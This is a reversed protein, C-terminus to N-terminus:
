NPILRVLISLIVMTVAAATGVENVTQPTIKPSQQTERVGERVPSNCNLCNYYIMGDTGIPVNYIFQYGSYSLVRGNVPPIPAGQSSGVFFKEHKLMTLADAYGQAQYQGKLSLSSEMFHSMPKLEWVSNIGNSMYHLDPRMKLDWKWISQSKESFWNERFDLNNNFFNSMAAHAYVGALAPSIGLYNQMWPSLSSGGGGGGSSGGADIYSYNASFSNNQTGNSGGFSHTGNFSSMSGGFYFHWYANQADQGTFTESSRGDPDIYRIPNNNGYVYPSFRRAIEALPDVVGWRGLDPMYFRAGYDYMGIEEQMEKGNYEYKYSGGANIGERYRLGFAY